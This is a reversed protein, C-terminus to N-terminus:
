CLANFSALARNSSRSKTRAGGEGGGGGGRGERGRGGGEEGEGREGRREGWLGLALHAHIAPLVTHKQAAM